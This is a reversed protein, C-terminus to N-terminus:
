HSIEYFRNDWDWVVFAVIVVVVDYADVNVNVAVAVPVAVAVAIADVVLWLWWGFVCFINRRLLNRCSLISDHPCRFGNKKGEERCGRDDFGTGVIAGTDHSSGHGIDAVVWIEYRQATATSGEYCGIDDEKRGVAALVRKVVLLDDDARVFVRGGVIASLRAKAVFPDGIREIPCTAVAVVVIKSQTLEISGHFDVFALDSENEVVVVLLVGSWIGTIFQQDHSQAGGGLSSRSRLRKHIQGDGVDGVLIAVLGISVVVPDLVGHHTCSEGVLGSFVGALSVRTTGHHLAGFVPISGEGIDVDTDDGPAETAGSLLVRPDVGTGAITRIPNLVRHAVDQLADRGSAVVVVVAVWGRTRGGVAVAVFVFEGDRNGCIGVARFRCPQDVLRVVVVPDLM